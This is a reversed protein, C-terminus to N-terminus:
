DLPSGFASPVCATYDNPFQASLCFVTQPPPTVGAETNIFTCTVNAGETLNVTVSNTGSAGNTCNVSATYNGVATETVTYSGPALENFVQQGGSAPITFAGLTGSFQWDAAPIAGVIQKNITLTGTEQTPEENDIFGLETSYARLPQNVGDGTLFWTTTAGDAFNNSVPDIVVPGNCYEPATDMWDTMKLNYDGFNFSVFHTAERYRLDVGAPVTFPIGAQSCVDVATGALTTGFSAVHIVRLKTKGIAVPDTTDNYSWMDPEFAEMNGIIVITYDRNDVLNFIRTRYPQANRFAEFTHDGPGSVPIYESFEGYQLDVGPVAVDDIEITVSDTTSTSFPALHVFRVRVADPAQPADTQALAAGAFAALIVVAVLIKVNLFKKIM